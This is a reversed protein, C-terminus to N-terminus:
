AELSTIRAELEQITKVLLPVLKSQDIGQLDPVSRTGMVADASETTVNGDEDTVEEIAASVEYEEDRMADKTGTVAEPVVAQAEHALFGDTRTGASIWEFNVPNLQKLRATAGVMPQVDTKLRYDSTTAYTVASGNDTIGGKYSGSRYFFIHNGASNDSAIGYGGGADNEFKAVFGSNVNRVVNFKGGNVSVEGNSHIKFRKSASTHGVGAATSGGGTFFLISSSGESNGNGTFMMGCHNISGHSNVTELGHGTSDAVLKSNLGFLIDAHNNTTINSYGFSTRANNYFGITTPSGTGLKVAADPVIEIGTVFSDGKNVTLKLDGLVSGGSASVQSMIKAGTNGASSTNTPDGGNFVIGMSDNYAAGVLAIVPGSDNQIVLDHAPATAGMGVNGDARVVMRVANSGGSSTLSSLRLLQETGYSSTEVHLGIGNANQNYFYGAWDSSSNGFVQLRGDTPSATGIGVNGAKLVMMDSHWSGSYLSFNLSTAGISQDYSQAEILALATGISPNGSLGIGLRSNDTTNTNQLVIHKNSGFSTSASDSKITLPSIPVGTGIGVKSNNDFVANNTGDGLFRLAYTNNGGVYLEDGAAAKIVVANTGGNGISLSSTGSTNVILGTATAIGTTTIDAANISNSIYLNRPRNAGSAGIDYAGDAHAFLDGKLQTNTANIDLRTFGATTGTIAGTMAGGSLPLKTAISNTVTTSFNADDGLAAALENLTNMAAPSSDVLNTIATDAYATTAIRTSNNGATQTTTTPNGGLAIDSGAEVATKIEANTQDATASAEIANLKSHDADTFVNSDTAAEVAARIEADTQDATASTEIGDLKTHDAATFETGDALNALDRSRTM